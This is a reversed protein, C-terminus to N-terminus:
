QCAPATDDPGPGVDGSVNATFTNGINTVSAKSGCPISIGYSASNTLKSNEIDLVTTDSIV